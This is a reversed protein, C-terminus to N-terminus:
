STGLDARSADAEFDGELAIGEEFFQPYHTRFERVMLEYPLDAFRGYDHLYEMYKHGRRDFPHFISDHRGDFELPPVGFRQCLSLNFVPTAKVWREDLFLETFGHFVFVDTKMRERLRETTLHNRVIAFGLRSPIGLARASAALLIAKEVCFGSGRSLVTSAKLAHPSFDIHYPDYRIGDRVRYYLAVAKERHSLMGQTSQRAFQIIERSDSDIFRTPELYPRMEEGPENM